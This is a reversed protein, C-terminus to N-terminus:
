KVNLEVYLDGRPGGQHYRWMGQGKLVTTFKGRRLRGKCKAVVSMGNLAPIDFEFSFFRKTIRLDDKYVTHRVGVDYLSGEHRYFQGDDREGSLESEDIPIISVQQKYRKSSHSSSTPPFENGMDILDITASVDALFPRLQISKRILEVLKTGNETYRFRFLSLEIVERSFIRCILRM